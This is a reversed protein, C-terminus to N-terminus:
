LSGLCQIFLAEVILSFVLIPLFCCLYVRVLYLGCGLHPAGHVLLIESTHFNEKLFSLNLSLNMMCWLGLIRCLLSLVEFHRGKFDLLFYMPFVVSFPFGVKLPSVCLSM